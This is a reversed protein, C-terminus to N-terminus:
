GSTIAYTRIFATVPFTPQLVLKYRAQPIMLGMCGPSGIQPLESHFLKSLLRFLPEALANRLLLRSAFGGSLPATSLAAHPIAPNMELVGVPM